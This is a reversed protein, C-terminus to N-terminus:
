DSAWDILPEDSDRTTHEGGNTGNSLLSDPTTLQLSRRKRYERARKLCAKLTGLDIPKPVFDDMGCERAKEETDPRADASLAVIYPRESSSRGFHANMRRSSSYGDMVPMCLDILACDYYKSMAMEAGEAGNNAIDYKHNLRDLLRRMVKQNIKNDEVLLITMSSDESVVSGTSSDRTVSSRQSPVQVDQQKADDLRNVNMNLSSEQCRPCLSSLENRLTSILMPRMVLARHPCDALLSREKSPNGSLFIVIFHQNWWHINKMTEPTSLEIDILAIMPLRRGARQTDLMASAADQLQKFYKTQNIGCLRLSASYDEAEIESATVLIAYDQLLTPHSCRNEGCAGYEEPIQLNVTVTFESGRGLKSKVEIKGRMLSVLKKCIALGLGTGGYERTTSGDLQRFSQFLTPISDEPIGVGTDSICIKLSCYRHRLDSYRNNNSGAKHLQGVSEDFFSSCFNAADACALEYEDSSIERGTVDIRVHGKSTFKIANSTLNVMVQRLRLSDGQLIQPTQPDIRYRLAIKSDYASSAFLSICGQVCDVIDFPSNELQFSISEYKSFDLIDNLISLLTKSSSKITEFTEKQEATMRSTDLVSILAIIANMPTRLEHSMVALFESKLKTKMEAMIKAEQLRHNMMKQNALIRLNNAEKRLQYAQELAISITTAAEIAITAEPGGIPRDSYLVIIADNGREWSGNIDSDTNASTDDNFPRYHLLIPVCHRFESRILQGLGATENLNLFEAGASYPLDRGSTFYHPLVKPVPINGAVSYKHQLKLVEGKECEDLSPLYISCMGLDCLDVFAKTARAAVTSVKISSRVTDNFQKFKAFRTNEEKLAKTVELRNRVEDELSTLRAPFELIQPIVRAMAVATVVSIVATAVKSAGSYAFRPRDLFELAMMLHSLGCALIFAELLGVVYRYPFNGLHAMFYMIQAPIAFYSLAILVDSIFVTWQMADSSIPGGYLVAPDGAEMINLDAAANQRDTPLGHTTQITVVLAVVLRVVGEM